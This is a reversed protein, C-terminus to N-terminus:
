EGDRERTVDLNEADRVIMSAKRYGREEVRGTACMETGRYDVIRRPFRNHHEQYIVVWFPSDPYLREFNIYAPDGYKVGAVRGCVTATKGAAKWADAPRLFDEAAPSPEPSNATRNPQPRPEPPPASRRVTQYMPVGPAAERPPVPGPTVAENQPGPVGVSDALVVTDASAGVVPVPPDAIVSTDSPSLLSVNQESLSDGGWANVAMAIIGAIGVLMAAGKVYHSKSRVPQSTSPPDSQVTPAAASHVQELEAALSRARWLSESIQRACRELNDRVQVNAFRLVTWGQRTLSAERGLFDSFEQKSMGSGRGRKDFGDVEIALRVREGEIIAFDIRRQRGDDDRFPHQPHVNAPDLGIVLPLVTEAFLLEFRSSGALAERHQQIFNEWTM